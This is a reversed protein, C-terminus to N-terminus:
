ARRFVADGTAEETRLEWLQASLWCLRDEASFWHAMLCLVPKCLHTYVYEGDIDVSTRCIMHFLHSFILFYFRRCLFAVLAFSFLMWRLDNEERSTAIVPMVLSWNRVSVFFQHWFTSAVVIKVRCYGICQKESNNPVRFDCKQNVRGSFWRHFCAPFLKSLM